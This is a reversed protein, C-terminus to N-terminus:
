GRRPAVPRLLTPPTRARIWGRRLTRGRRGLGLRHGLRMKQDLLDSELWGQLVQLEAAERRQLEFHTYGNSICWARQAVRWADM